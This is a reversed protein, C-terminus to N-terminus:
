DNPQVVFKSLDLQELPYLDREYDAKIPEPIQIDALLKEGAKTSSLSMMSAVVASRVGISVRPNAIFPHPAYQGTEYLVRLSAQLAPDERELTTNIGGAANFMGMAVARYASAHTKLYVPEIRIGKTALEARILLSAAFANPAPFAVKKNNLEQISRISSDSRVVLLGTLKNRGDILLPTYGSLKKAVVAHYPNAFAFDPVGKVLLREFEPITDPTLLEFCLGASKGINELFPSWKEYIIRPSLQPVVAVTFVQTAGRDGLCNASATPILAFSGLMLLVAIKLSRLKIV